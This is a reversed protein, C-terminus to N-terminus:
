DSTVLESSRIRLLYYLAAFDYLAHCVIPAILNGTALYLLSLYAGAGAAALAYWASVAHVAGFLLSAAVHAAGIGLVDGLAGQIVGRFLIEECVGALASIAALQSVSWGSLWPLLETDLLRRLRALGPSSARVLGILALLLPLVAVAGIAVDGARWHLGAALPRGLLLALVAAAGLLSAEVACAIWFVRRGAGRVYGTM